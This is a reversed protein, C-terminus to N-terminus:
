NRRRRQPFPPLPVYLDPVDDEKDEFYKNRFSNGRPINESTAFIVIENLIRLAIQITEREYEGSEFFFRKLIAQPQERGWVPALKRKWLVGLHFSSMRVLLFHQRPDKVVAKLPLILPQSILHERVRNWWLALKGPIPVVAILASKLTSLTPLYQQQTSPSLATWDHIRSDLAYKERVYELVTPSFVQEERVAKEEVRDVSVPPSPLPLPIRYKENFKSDDGETETKMSLLHSLFHPVPYPRSLDVAAPSLPSPLSLSLSPSPSPPLSHIQSSIPFLESALLVRRAERRPPITVPITVGLHDFIVQSGEKHFKLAIGNDVLAPVGLLLGLAFEPCILARVRFFKGHVIEVNIAQEGLVKLEKGNAGFIRQRTGQPTPTFNKLIQQGIIAEVGAGSDFLVYQNRLNAVKFVRATTLNSPKRSPPVPTQIMFLNGGYRPFM